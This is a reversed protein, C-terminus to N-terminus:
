FAVNLELLQQIFPDPRDGICWPLQVNMAREIMEELISHRSELTARLDNLAADDTVNKRLINLVILTEYEMANLINVLVDITVKRFTSTVIVRSIILQETTHMQAALAQQSAVSVHTIPM